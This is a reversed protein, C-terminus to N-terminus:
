LGYGSAFARQYSSTGRRNHQPCVAKVINAVNYPNIDSEWHRYVVDMDKALCETGCEACKIVTQTTALNAEILMRLLQGVTYEGDSMMLDAYIPTIACLESHLMDETASCDCADNVYALYVAIRLPDKLLDISTGDGNVVRTFFPGYLVEADDPGIGM